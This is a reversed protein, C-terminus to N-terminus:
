APGLAALLGGVLLLAAFYPLLVRQVRSAEVGAVRVAIINALSGQLLGVGGANVGMALSRWYTTHPALMVTAPVNSVAQSLLAGYLFAELPGRSAGALLHSPVLLLAASSDVILLTLVALLAYDTAVLVERGAVALVALTLALAEGQRGAWALVSDAVVLGFSVALLRVDVAVPPPQQLGERTTAGRILAPEYIALALLAALAFPAMAKAFLAPSVHYYHWIIINQPNGVPSASSGANVAIAVIAVAVGPEAGYIRSATVAVPAYVVAAGDNMAVTASGAAALTLLVYFLLPRGASLGALLSALRSLGGSLELGRSALILSVVAAIARADAVEWVRLARGRTLVAEAAYVIALLVLLRERRLM